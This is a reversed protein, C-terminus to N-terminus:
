GLFPHGPFGHFSMTQHHDIEQSPKGLWELNSYVPGREKVKIHNSCDNLGPRFRNIVMLLSGFLPQKTLITITKVFM